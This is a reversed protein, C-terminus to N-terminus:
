NNKFPNPAQLSMDPGKFFLRSALMNLSMRTPDNLEQHSTCHTLSNFFDYGNINSNATSLWKKNKYKIKYPKYAEQIETDDFYNKTLDKSFGQLTDRAGFFENLSINSEKLRNCNENVVFTFDEDVTKNVLKNFSDQKIKESSIFRQALMETATMGNTCILRLFFPSVVTRNEGFNINFGSNWNDVGNSFVDIKKRLNRVQTEIQLTKTNFFMGHIKLDKGNADMYSKILEIGRALNLDQEEELTDKFIRTIFTNDDDKHVISTVTRDNKINALTKQLPVWQDDDSKIESLLDNKISFINLLDNLATSSVMTTGDYFNAGVKRINSLKVPVKNYQSIANLVNTSYTELTLTNTNNM